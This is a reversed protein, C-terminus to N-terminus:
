EILQNKIEEDTEIYKLIDNIINIIENKFDTEGIMEILLGVNNSWHSEKLIGYGFSNYRSPPINFLDIKKFSNAEGARAAPTKLSYYTKSGDIAFWIGADKLWGIQKFVIGKGDTSISYLLDLKNAIVKAFETVILKKASEINKSIEFASEINDLRSIIEVIESKFQMNMDQNTLQKILTIYQNITERVLPLRSSIKLCIELWNLIDKAYSIPTYNILDASRKSALHGDLTLYLIKYKSYFHKKGHSDYRILQAKQDGAYIKNEIIIANKFKDSIVIDIRGGEIDTVEGIHKEVIVKASECHFNEINIIKVFEKLFEDKLGHSGNPRLLEALLASHLKVEDSALGIINFVNFRGGTADLIENNKKVILGIQNLLSQLQQLKEM